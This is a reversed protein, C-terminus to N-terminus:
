YEEIDMETNSHGMNCLIAGTKLKEAHERTIVSKSGTATIIIGVQKIVKYNLKNLNKKYLFNQFNEGYFTAFNNVYLNANIRVSTPQKLYQQSRYQRHLLHLPKNQHTQNLEFRKLKLHPKREMRPVEQAKNQWPNCRHNRLNCSWKHFKGQSPESDKSVLPCNKKLLLQIRKWVLNDKKM